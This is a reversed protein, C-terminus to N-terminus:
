PAILMIGGSIDHFIRLEEHIAKNDSWFTSIQSSYMAVAVAWIEIEESSLQVVIENGLPLGFDSPICGNRAAYPLDHFYWLQRGLLEVSRRTLRHDVHGGIALPCYLRAESPCIKTLMNALRDVLVMEQANISNIIAAESPYFAEGDSDKRYVADPIDLHVVSAGLHDCALRDESRRTVMPDGDEGWRAHLERVFVSLSGSPPDGACITVVTVSEGKSTQKVILGGCSLVADDLHPSLYYHDIV